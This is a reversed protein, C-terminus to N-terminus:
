TPEAKPKRKLAKYRRDTGNNRHKLIDLRHQSGMAAEWALLLPESIYYSQHLTHPKRRRYVPLSLRIILDPLKTRSARSYGIREMIAAAGWYAKVAAM